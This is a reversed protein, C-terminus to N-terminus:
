FNATHAQADHFLKMFSLQKCYKIINDGMSDCVCVSVYMYINTHTNTYSLILDQGVQTLMLVCQWVNKALQLYLLSSTKCSTIGNLILYKKKKVHKQEKFNVNTNLFIFSLLNGATHRPVMFRNMHYLLMSPLSFHEHLMLSQLATYVMRAHFDGRLEPRCQGQLKM